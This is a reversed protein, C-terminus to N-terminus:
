IRYREADAAKLTMGHGPRSRDPQLTGDKPELIGDFLLQDIRVHDHFYEVHRLASCPVASTPMCNRRATRRYRCM